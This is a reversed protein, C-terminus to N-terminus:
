QQQYADLYIKQTNFDKGKLDVLKSLDDAQSMHVVGDEDDGVFVIKNRWDKFTAASYYSEVKDVIAQAEELTQVPFRGIAVDMRDTSPVRWLGETDDLLGFYDDSVHSNVPDVSNISQFSPVYNTGGSTPNKFVYSADGMMLVYKPTTGIGSARDYFMKIFTRMAILDHAGSSFENFIQETTVVNVQLGESRHINALRDAAAVFKEHSIILMDAQPLGHLNQTEVKGKSYIGVSDTSTFAIYERLQTVDNQFASASGNNQITMEEVNQVDTIDWVKLNPTNPFQFVAEANPGGNSVVSRVDRFTTQNGVMAIRSRLNVTLYNLWGKSVVQPKNYNLNFSLPGSTPTFEFMERAAQAFRFEYRSLNTSGVETDFSQGNVSLTFKSIIGSRALVSMEVKARESVVTNSANIGVNLNTTNDFLEGVWLSGSKLLNSLELEHYNYNDYETVTAVAPNSSIGKVNMRKGNAGEANIFFFTTDSFRNLTHRFFQSTTDYSWEVQDDGYFLVYDNRDFSGDQEGVVVIANEVLDDPREISNLEPLMGGGYGYIKIKRPDVREVDLGLNALFSRTLKFVKEETVAIKYWNGNALKSQSAFTLSKQRGLRKKVADAAYIDCSVLREVRGNIVRLPVIKVVSSSRKKITVASSQVGFYNDLESKEIIDAEATPVVETIVNELRVNNLEQGEFEQIFFPLNSISFDYQADEFTLARKNLEGELGYQIPDKWQLQVNTSEQGFLFTM